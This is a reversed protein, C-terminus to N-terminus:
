AAHRRLVEERLATGPALYSRLGEELSTMRVGLTKVLERHDVAEEMTIFDIGDPTLLRGPLFQVFGAIFKILPKPQPLILRRRGMVRLLTKVIEAMTLVEPGGAEFVKGFTKPSNIASRVIEGIDDVFVPQIKERGSGIIPVFPLLRAFGAYRNLSRDTPGYIWSPRLITWALGSERVAKEARLKAKFWPEIRGERTGAGSIYLVREIGSEKAAAVTLEAGEGDVREYTMGKAPNEFPANEFQVAIVLANCGKMAERLAKADFLDGAFFETGATRRRPDVSQPNRTLVRVSERGLVLKKVIASGVFGTGGTVLTQIM